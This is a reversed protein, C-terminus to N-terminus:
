GRLKGGGLIKVLARRDVGSIVERIRSVSGCSRARKETGGGCGCGVAEAGYGEVELERRCVTKLTALPSTVVPVAPDLAGLRLVATAATKPRSKCSSTLRVSPFPSM